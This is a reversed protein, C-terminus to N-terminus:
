DPLSANPFVIPRTARGRLRFIVAAENPPDPNCKKRARHILLYGFPFRFADPFISIVSRIYPRAVTVFILRFVNRADGDVDYMLM